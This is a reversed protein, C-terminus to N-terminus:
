INKTINWKSIDNRKKFRYKEMKFCVGRRIKNRYTLMNNNRLMRPKNSALCYQELKKIEQKDMTKIKNRENKISSILELKLDKNYKKEAYKLISKFIILVDNITKRSLEKSLSEIYINFDYKIFYSIRKNKFYKLIYKEVSYKYKYFTSEKVSYKKSILWSNAIKSFRENKVIM